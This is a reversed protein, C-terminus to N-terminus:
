LVLKGLRFANCSFSIAVPLMAIHTPLLKINIKVVTPIGGLGQPGINLNNAEEMLEKSLSSIFKTKDAFEDILIKKSIM